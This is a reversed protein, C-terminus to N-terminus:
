KLKRNTNVASYGGEGKLQVKQRGVHLLSPLDVAHSAKERMIAEGSISWVTLVAM